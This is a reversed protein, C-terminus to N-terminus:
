KQRDLVHCQIKNQSAVYILGSGLFIRFITVSTLYTLNTFVCLRNQCQRLKLKIQSLGHCTVTHHCQRRLLFVLPVHYSVFVKSPGFQPDEISAKQLVFMGPM